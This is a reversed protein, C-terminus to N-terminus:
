ILMIFLIALLEAIRSSILNLYAMLTRHFLNLIEYKAFWFNLPFFLNEVPLIKKKDSGEKVTRKGM